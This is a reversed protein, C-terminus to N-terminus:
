QIISETNAALKSYYDKLDMAINSRSVFCTTKFTNIHGWGGTSGSWTMEYGAIAVFEDDANYSEAIRHLEKWENSTSESVNAITENNLDKENDFWNSHDTVAFFDANGQDRAWKYADDLTGEGDSINTHSHLQGFYLNYVKEGVYFSWSTDAQNPIIAKDKVILRVNHEGLALDMASTYTIGQEDITCQDTIDIDDLYLKVSATDIGSLDSYSASIRPRMISGTAEGNSPTMNTIEPASIDEASIAVPYPTSIDIPVTATNSGDTAEIYYEIGATSLETKPITYAYEGNNLIMASYKYTTEGVNRYALKVASVQRDDTVVANITLNVGTNGETVPTHTIVPSVTDPIEVKTVDEASRVYLQYTRYISLIAVVDVTDGQNIDTLAPVMYIVTSNGSDDTLTTNSATNIAGITVNSIKILEGQYENSLQAITIVQPEPLPNGSSIKVITYDTLEYLGNFVTVTGTVRVMDGEAIIDGATKRYLNIGATDDQIFVSSGASTVIGTVTAKTGTALAKAEAITMEENTSILTYNFTSIDSTEGEKEAYAKISLPLSDLTIQEAPDYEIYVVDDTAFRITAGETACELAVKTGIAVAGSPPTATVAAVPGQEVPGTMTHSGLYIFTDAPYSIWEASPNFADTANSDGSIVTPKRVLTHEAAAYDGTGWSSGPDVGVQGFSDIIEGHHKLVLADDGNYYTVASTVDSIDKIANVASSNAIVYVAGAELTGSLALSNGVATAGNSYLEVTYQSLDVAGATGNYIELAKNSSSGEIYESFFLDAAFITEAMVGTPTLFGLLSTMILIFALM